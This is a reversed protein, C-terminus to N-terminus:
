ELVLEISGIKLKNSIEIIKKMNKDNNPSYEEHSKQLEESIEVKLYGHEKFLEALIIEIEEDTPSELLEDGILYVDDSKIYVMSGNYPKLIETRGVRTFTHFEKFAICNWEKKIVEEIKIKFDKYLENELREFSSFYKEDQLVAIVSDFEGPLELKDIRKNREKFQGELSSMDNPDWSSLDFVNCIRLANERLDLDNSCSTLLALMFLLLIKKM